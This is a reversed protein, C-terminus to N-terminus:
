LNVPQTVQDLDNQAYYHPCFESGPSGDICSLALLSPLRCLGAPTSSLSVKIVGLTAPRHESPSALARLQATGVKTHPPYSLLCHLGPSWEPAERAIRPTFYRPRLSPQSRPSHTRLFLILSYNLIQHGKPTLSLTSVPGAEPALTEM